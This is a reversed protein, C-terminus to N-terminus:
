HECGSESPARLSIKSVAARFNLSIFGHAWAEVSSDTQSWLGHKILKVLIPLLLFCLGFGCVFFRNIKQEEKAQSRAGMNLYPFILPRYIRKFYFSTKSQPYRTGCAQRSGSPAGRNGSLATTKRVCDLRQRNEQSELSCQAQAWLALLLGPKRDLAQRERARHDQTFRKGERPRLKGETSYLAASSINKLVVGMGPRIRKGGKLEKQSSEANVCFWSNVTHMSFFQNAM